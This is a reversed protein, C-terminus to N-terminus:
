GEVASCAADCDSLDCPTCRVGSIAVKQTLTPPPFARPVTYARDQGKEVHPYCMGGFIQPYYAQSSEEHRFLSFIYVWADVFQGSRAYGTNTSSVFTHHNAVANNKRDALAPHMGKDLLHALVPHM